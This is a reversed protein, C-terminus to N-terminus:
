KTIAPRDGDGGNRRLMALDDKVTRRTRSVGTMRKMRLLGIGILVAALLVYVGAVILFAAWNWIGLAVLGYALAISLLIVVIAGAVGAVAFLTSGLAARKADDKLEMKALEIESKVLQSVNVTAIKVLEGISKDGLQGDSRVETM